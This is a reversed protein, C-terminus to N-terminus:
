AETVGACWGGGEFYAHFKNVGDGTGTRWYFVPVTGDLCVAGNNNMADTLNVRTGPPTATEGYVKFYEEKSAYGEFEPCLHSKDPNHGSDGSVTLFLASIAFLCLM